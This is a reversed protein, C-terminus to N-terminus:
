GSRSQMEMQLERERRKASLYEERGMERLQRPYRETAEFWAHLRAEFRQERPLHLTHLYAELALFYRMANREIIGKVGSSYVPQGNDYREVSFGVKDRGAGELYAYTAFRSRLSPSFSTHFHLETRGQGAPFLELDILYDRTGHPGRPAFLRIRSRAGDNELVDFRYELRFARDVPDHFRRAVHLTLLPRNDELSLTCAKVNFVLPTFECWAEPDTLAMRVQDYPFDIVSAIEVTLDSGEDSSQMRFPADFV